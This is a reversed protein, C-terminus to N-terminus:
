WSLQSVYTRYQVLMKQLALSNRINAKEINKVRETDCEIHDYDDIDVLLTELQSLNLEVYQIFDDKESESEFLLIVEMYRDHAFKAEHSEEDLLYQHLYYSIDNKIYYKFSIKNHHHRDKAIFGWEPIVTVYRGSDLYVIQRSYLTTGFYNLNLFAYSTRTNYMVYAYFEPFGRDDEDEEFVLTYEPSISNYHHSEQRVWSKKRELLYRFREFPKLHLGARKKWLYEIHNIDASKVIDTNNDGVRTYIYNAKVTKSTHHEAKKDAYDEVLFYPTNMTNKVVLVDLEHKAHHFTKLEVQPRVGGAFKKDKLQAVFDKLTRRSDNNEVGVVDGADTVGFIIYADRDALNNAMCIIDHLLDARNSHHMEKFDWYDDERKSAILDVIESFFENNM